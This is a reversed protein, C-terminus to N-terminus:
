LGSNSWKDYGNIINDKYTALPQIGAFACVLTIVIISLLVVIFSPKRYFLKPSSLLTVSWIFLGVTVVFSAAGVAFSLTQNIVSVCIIGAGIISTIFLLNVLLKIWSFTSSVPEYTQM